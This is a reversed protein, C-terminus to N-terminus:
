FERLERASKLRASAGELIPNTETGTKDQRLAQLEKRSLIVYIREGKKVYGLSRLAMEQATPDEKLAKIEESLRACQAKLAKIEDLKSRFLKRSEQWHGMTSPLTAALTLVALALCAMLAKLM